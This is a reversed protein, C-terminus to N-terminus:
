PNVAAKFSELSDVIIVPTGKEVWMALERVEANRMAICGQTWNAVEHIELKDPTEDGIGHIGIQGGLPTNQPPTENYIFAALIQRYQKRTIRGDKLAQKADDMNPYDLHMFLYFRDSSRIDRIRYHGKPTRRDGEQMKPQRGGSGFAVKFSRVTKDDKRVLLKNESRVIVLEIGDSAALSIAPWQLLLAIFLLKLIQM